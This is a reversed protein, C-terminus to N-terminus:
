TRNELMSQFKRPPVGSVYAHDIESATLDTTDPIYIWAAVILFVSLGAFVFASRLGLNGEDVDYMYPVVFAVLWNSFAMSITAISITKGRLRYTSIEAAIPYGMVQLLITQLIILLNMVVAAAWLAGDGPVYYLAGIVVMLVLNVFGGAMFMNHRRFFGMTLWNLLIGLIALAFGGVGIDFAHVAPLGALILILINQNLLPAGAIQLAAYILVATMTRKLDTGKFCDIYSGDQNQESSQEEEITHILEQMRANISPGPYVREMIKRAADLSGHRILYVPSEPILVFAITALGGVVWQIAFVIRFAHESIDPVFVRVIGLGVAYMIVTCLVIAQQIPARLKLPAMESAYTTGIAMAAGIGFGSIIKGALLVGRTVATYQVATGIITLASFAAGPWKRGFRDIVFGVALAGVAQALYSFASWLSTWMAPLYYGTPGLEGFYMLFAPMSLSAGNAISDYGFTASAGFSALCCLLPRWHTKAAQVLSMHREEELVPDLFGDSGGEVHKIVLDEDHEVKAM